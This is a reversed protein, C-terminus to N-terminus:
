GPRSNDFVSLDTPHVCIFLHAYRRPRSVLIFTFIRDNLARTGWAGNSPKISEGSNELWVPWQTWLCAHQTKVGCGTRLERGLVPWPWRFSCKIPLGHGLTSSESCHAQSLTNRRPLSEKMGGKTSSPEEQSCGAWALLLSSKSTGSKKNKGGVPKSEWPPIPNRPVRLLSPAINVHKSFM